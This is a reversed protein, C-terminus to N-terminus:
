LWNSLSSVMVVMRSGKGDWYSYTVEVEEEKTAEQLLLWENKLSERQALEMKDREVDPLFHTDIYPNKGLKAKKNPRESDLENTSSGRFQSHRVRTLRLLM